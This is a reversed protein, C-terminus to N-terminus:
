NPPARISLFSSGARDRLRPRASAWPPGVRERGLAPATTRGIGAIAVPAQGLSSQVLLAAGQPNKGTYALLILDPHREVPTAGASRVQRAISDELPIGDYRVQVRLGPKLARLLM